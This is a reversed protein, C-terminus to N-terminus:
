CLRLGGANTLDTYGMSALVKMAKGARNGSRCYLIIKKNKDPAIKTIENSIKDWDVRQAKLLHGQNWEAESRVDIILPEQTNSFTSVSILLGLFIFLQKM